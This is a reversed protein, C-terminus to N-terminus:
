SHKIANSAENFQDQNFVKIGNSRLLAATVGIGQIKTGSFDGNYILSSGCSPSNEALVAVDIGNEKCLMLANNAGCIFNETVNDGSRDIVSSKGTLVDDGDGDNIEAPSRPTSMGSSVEPCISIVRGQAIWEQLISNEAFLSGGDYRM